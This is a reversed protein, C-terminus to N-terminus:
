PDPITTSIRARGGTAEFFTPGPGTPARAEREFAAALFDFVALEDATLLRHYVAVTVMSFTRQAEPWAPTRPGEVAVLDQITVGNSGIVAPIVSDAPLLGMLYLELDNYYGRSFGSHDRRLAPTWHVTSSTLGLSPSLYVACCHLIEHLLLEFGATGPAQFTRVMGRLRGPSGYLGTADFVERGIGAIPNRAHAFYASVRSGLARTFLQAEYLFDPDFGIRDYYRRAIDVATAVTGESASGSPPMVLSVVRGTRRADASVDIVDPV